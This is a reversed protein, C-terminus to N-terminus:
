QSRKGSNSYLIDHIGYFITGFAYDIPIADGGTLPITFVAAITGKPSYAYSSYLLYKDHLITNSAQCTLETIKGGALPTVRHCGDAVYYVSTKDPTLAYDQYM